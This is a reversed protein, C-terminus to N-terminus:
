LHLASLYKESANMKESRQEIMFDYEALVRWWAALRDHVAKKQITHRLAQHNNIASFLMPSLRHVEFKRLAFRVALVEKARTAHRRAFSSM